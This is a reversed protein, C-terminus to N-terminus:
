TVMMIDTASAVLLVPETSPAITVNTSYPSSGNDMTTYMMPVGARLRAMWARAM